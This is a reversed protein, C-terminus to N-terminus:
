IHVDHSLDSGVRNRNIAKQELALARDTKISRIRAHAHPSRLVRGYIQDPLTYDAGFKARGTVKEVGDPRPVRTGVWKLEKDQFGM